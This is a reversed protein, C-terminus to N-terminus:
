LTKSILHMKERWYRSSILMSSQYIRIAEPLLIPSSMLPWWNELWVLGSVDWGLSCMGCSKTLVLANRYFM